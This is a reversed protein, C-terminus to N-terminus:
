RVGPVRRGRGTGVTAPRPAHERMWILAQTTADTQDDHAATPFGALEDVYGLVWEAYLGDPVPVGEARCLERFRVLMRPQETGPRPLYVRKQEGQCAWARAEKSGMKTADFEDTMGAVEAKLDNVVAPGNAKPEVVRPAAGPYVEAAARAALKTQRFDLRARLQDVLWRKPEVGSREYAWVQVVVFSSDDTGKFACDVSTMRPAREPVEGPEYYGWASRLFITGRPATPRQQYEGLWVYEGVTRRLDDWFREAGELDGAPMDPRVLPEGPERGLPDPGIGAEPDEAEAIAPIRIVHWDGPDGERDDSLLRGPFDDEHFRTANVVVVSEPGLRPVMTALWWTWAEDRKAPSWADEGKIPDDIVAFRGTRGTGGLGGAVHIGGGMTEWEGASASDPSVRAALRDANAVLARRVRRGWTRGYTDNYTAHLVDASPLVGRAHLEHLWAPWWLGSLSTKGTQPPQLILLRRPGTGFTADALASSVVDLHPRRVWRRVREDGSGGGRKSLWGAFKAPTALVSARAKQARTAM